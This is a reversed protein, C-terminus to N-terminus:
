APAGSPPPRHCASGTASSSATRTSRRSRPASGCSWAGSACSRQPTGASPPAFPGLVQDTMEVLIVRVRKLDLEPYTVPLAINRLEALTGAMEVGTPGAGVIVTVPEVAEPRNQAVAEINGLLVDRVEIAAKRTYTTRAHEEAGPIGFYNATVGCCLVLYDYGIEEGTDTRVYRRAADMGTVRM